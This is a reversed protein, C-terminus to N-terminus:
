PVVKILTIEAQDYSLAGGVASITVDLVDAYVFSLYKFPLVLTGKTTNTTSVVDVGDVHKLTVVAKAGADIDVINVRGHILFYGNGGVPNKSIDNNFLSRTTDATVHSIGEEWLGFANNDHVKNGM